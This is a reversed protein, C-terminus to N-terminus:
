EESEEFVTLCGKPTFIRRDEETWLDQLIKFQLRSLINM